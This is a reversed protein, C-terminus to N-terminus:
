WALRIRVFSLASRPELDNFFAHLQEDPEGSEFKGCQDAVYGDLSDGAPSELVLTHRLRLTEGNVKFVREGGENEIWYDDGIAFLKERM